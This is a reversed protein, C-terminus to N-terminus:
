ELPRNASPFLRYNVIKKNIKIFGAEICCHAIKSTSLDGNPYSYEVKAEANPEILGNPMHGDESILLYGGKKLIRFAASIASEAFCDLSDKIVVMDFTENNFTTSELTECALILIM